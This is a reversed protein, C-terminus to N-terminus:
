MLALEGFCSLKDATYRQLVRPVEGNKEQQTAFVEFEGSGVVFFCDGEGGQEFFFQLADRVSMECIEM